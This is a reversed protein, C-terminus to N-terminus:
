QREKWAQFMLIVWLPYQWNRRGSLHEEWKQRIPGPNFFGEARLRREKLLEEAWDRLPGRLWADLPVGFGMKPRDILHRPVYRDLVQRLIWKGESECRIKMSLPLRWAFEVVRHDLLPVRVELSVAMSARDVKVLLDDPLYTVLDLYMMSLTFDDLKTRRAPDTLPTLPEGADLAVSLPHQWQSVMGVYMTEPDAIALIEALKHLKHGPNQFAPLVTGLHRFISDIRGPPLATLGHSLARRLGAPMWGVKRWLSRGFFYRNYGGFLEDGGDGSLSVTVHRRALESVLFTPIESSDAFPEDYMDPLRPIVAQAQGPTVYLETHDTGLHEAVRKAHQAENYEDEFFGITFTRVPRSSQAQMLAVVTSSDIGGSLFAGLPVDSIMRLRVAQRLLSDLQAVADSESGEFTSACGEEAVTRASWFRIPAWSATRDDPHPSFGNPNRAREPTVTLLCGPPLKYVGRYISLPSPIYGHRLFLALASRDIDPRCYPYRLIAKLESGFLFARGAWGFYLPKIGVRDRVLSLVEDARDWLAFAFMGVFRTVASHLGWQEIAALMVETDSHGRFKAGCQELERRLDLFNYVEGNYSIVYRGSASVMPQRGEPSLDLISLRAHGFALGPSPESWVGADDPGRYRIAAVMAEVTRNLDSGAHGFVGAVGCM